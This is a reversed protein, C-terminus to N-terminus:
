GYPSRACIQLASPVQLGPSTIVQQCLFVRQQFAAATRIGGQGSCLHSQLVVERSQSTVPVWQQQLGKTQRGPLLKLRWRARASSHAATVLLWVSAVLFVVASIVATCHCMTFATAATPWLKSPLVPLPASSLRQPHIIFSRLNAETVVTLILPKKRQYPMSHAFAWPKWDSIDPTIASCQTVELGHLIGFAFYKPAKLYCKISAGSPKSQM